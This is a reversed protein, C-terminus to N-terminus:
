GSEKLRVADGHPDKQIELSFNVNKQKMVEAFKEYIKIAGKSVCGAGACVIIRKNEAQLRKAAEARLAQLEERGKIM